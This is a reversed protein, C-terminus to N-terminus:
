LQRNGASVVVTITVALSLASKCLSRQANCGGTVGYSLWIVDIDHAGSQLSNFDHRNRIMILADDSKPGCRTEQATRCCSYREYSATYYLLTKGFLPLRLTVSSAAAAPAAPTTASATILRDAGFPATEPWRKRENCGVANM